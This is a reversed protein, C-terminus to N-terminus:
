EEDQLRRNLQDRCAMVFALDEAQIDPPPLFSDPPSTPPSVIAVIVQAGEALQTNPPLKIMGGEVKGRVTKM